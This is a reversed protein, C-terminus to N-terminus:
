PFSHDSDFQRGETKVLTNTLVLISIMIFLYKIFTFSTAVKVHLEILVPIIIAPLKNTRAIINSRGTIRNGFGRGTGTTKKM